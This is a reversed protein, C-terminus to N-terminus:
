TRATSSKAIPACNERCMLHLRAQGDDAFMEKARDDRLHQHRCLFFFNWFQFWIQEALAQRVPSVVRIIVQCMTIRCHLTTIRGM